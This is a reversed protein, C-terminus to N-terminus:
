LHRALFDWGKNGWFTHVDPFTELETKDGAGIVEYVKKVRAFSEKSAQIPFIPDREGAEAFLPRPAILGAVDYMEAYKLIGPVYNDICHSMAIISDRFTNLYCSVWALKIRPELAAGFVTATGGGSIGMLGIRKSDIEKRSELYDVVRMIDYVRWGIMTEGLLLAAGASPQCAATGAGKSKTRADRRCGFALPEIAFAAYGREAAEIAFDKQYGSKDSRDDGNELVGVLDDAGRGHGPHCIMAPMPTAAPKKPTLLYGSILMGPRSQLLVRERRYKPFDRTEFIEPKLDIREQPFGGLLETIKPRLKRQWALAEQKSAAKFTMSLPAAAHRDFTYAVPDLEKREPLPKNTAATATRATSAVAALAALERRTLRPM